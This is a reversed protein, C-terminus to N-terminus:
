HKMWETKHTHTHTHTHTKIEQFIHFFIITTTKISKTKQRKTNNIDTKTELTEDM